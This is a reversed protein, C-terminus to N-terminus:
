LHAKVRRNVNGLKRTTAQAGNRLPKNDCCHNIVNSGRSEPCKLDASKAGSAKICTVSSPTQLRSPMGGYCDSSHLTKTSCEYDPDLSTSLNKDKNSRM